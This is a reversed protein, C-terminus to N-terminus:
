EPLGLQELLAGFAPDGSVPEFLFGFGVMGLGSRNARTEIGQRLLDLTPNVDGLGAHVWAKNVPSVYRGQRSLEVLRDLMQRAEAARGMRAYVYGLLAVEDVVDGDMLPIQQQLRRAAEEYEGERAHIFASMWYGMWNEPDSAILEGAAQKYREPDGTLRYNLYPDVLQPDLGRIREVTASAEDRRGIDLLFLAHNTLTAIDDPTLEVARKYERAAAAWDWDHGARVEAWALHALSLEGDLEVATMAAKRAALWVQGPSLINYNTSISVYTRALGAHCPAHESAMEVCSTFVDIAERLNAEGGQDLLETGRAFMADPDMGAKASDTCTASALLTAVVAATNVIMIPRM